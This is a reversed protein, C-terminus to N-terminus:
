YVARYWAMGVMERLALRAHALARASPLVAYLGQEDGLPGAFGTPAAQALIGAHEFCWMARPMHWAQTVVTVRRVGDRELLARTNLANEWTNRSHEELQLDAIGYDEVLLRAGLRAESEQEQPYVTGGSLIVPTGTARALHATYRLRELAYPSPADGGYEPANANRGAGLAVLREGTVADPQIAPYRGQLTDVLTYALLPTSFVWLLALGGVLAARAARRFRRALLLGFVALLLPGGPPLILTQLLDALM